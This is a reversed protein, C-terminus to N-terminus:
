TVVTPIILRVEAGTTNNALTIRSSNRIALDICLRLGLGSGREGQTGTSSFFFDPRHIYKLVNEPFGNGANQILITKSFQNEKLFINITSNEPSFKVANILINRLIVKLAKKDYFVVMDMEQYQLQLQKGKLLPSVNEELEQLVVYLSVWEKDPETKQLMFHGWNLLTELINRTDRAYHDLQDSISDMLHFERLRVLYAIKDSLNLVGLLPQRLEHGLLAFLKDKAINIRELQDNQVAIASREQHLEKTRDAILHELEIQRKRIAKLRLSNIKHMILGLGVFLLFLSLPKTYWPSTIKFRQVRLDSFSLDLEQKCAIELEYHGATLNNLDVYKESLEIWETSFLTENKSLRYFYKRQDNFLEPYCFNVRFSETSAPVILEKQQKPLIRESGGEKDFTVIDIIQIRTKEKRKRALQDLERPDFIILGNIGGMAIRGDDFVHWASKNFENSPLNHQEMNLRVGKGTQLDYQVLGDNSPLWYTDERGPIMVHFSNKWKSRYLPIEKLVDLKRLWMFPSAREPVLFVTDQNVVTTSTIKYKGGTLCSDLIKESIPDFLYAGVDTSLWWGEKEINIENFQSSNLKPFEVFEFPMISDSNIPQYFLGVSTGVWLRQLTDRVPILMQLTSGYRDNRTAKVPLLEMEDGLSSVCISTAHSGLWLSDGDLWAEYGHNLGGVGIDYNRIAGTTVNLFKVGQYSCILLEDESSPNISRLSHHKFSPYTSIRNINIDIAVVEHEALLLLTEDQLVGIYPLMGGMYFFSIPKSYEEEWTNDKWNYSACILRRERRLWLRDYKDLTLAMTYLQEKASMLPVVSVEKHNYLWAPNKNDLPSIVVEGYGFFVILEDGVVARSIEIGISDIKILDDNKKCFLHGEAIFILDKGKPSHLALSINELEPFVGEITWEKGDWSYIEQSNTAIFIRDRDQNVSRIENADFPLDEYHKAFPVVTNEYPDFILVEHVCEYKSLAVGGISNVNVLWILGNEDIFLRFRGDPSLGFNEAPIETFGNGNYQQIAGQDAFWFVGTTDRVVGTLAVPDLGEEKGFHNYDVLELVDVQAFALQKGGFVLLSVVTWIFRYNYSKRSIISIKRNSIITHM